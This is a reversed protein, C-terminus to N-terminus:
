NDSKNIMDMIQYLPTISGYSWGHWSTGPDQLEHNYEIWLPQVTDVFHGDVWKYQIKLTWRHKYFKQEVVYFGSDSWWSDTKVDFWSDEASKELANALTMKDGAFGSFDYTSEYEKCIRGVESVGVERIKKIREEPSQGSHQESAERAKRCCECNCTCTCKEAASVPIANIGALLSAIILWKSIVELFIKKFEKM